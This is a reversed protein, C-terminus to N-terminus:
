MLKLKSTWLTRLLLRITGSLRESMWQVTFFYRNLFILSSPRSAHQTTASLELVTHRLITLRVGKQPSESSHHFMQQVLWPLGAKSHVPSGWPSETQDHIHCVSEPRCVVTTLVQAAVLHAALQSKLILRIKLFNQYEFNWIAKYFVPFYWFALFTIFDCM